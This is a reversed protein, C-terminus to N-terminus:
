NVSQHSGVVQQIRSFPWSGVTTSLDVLVSWRRFGSTRLLLSFRMASSVAISLKISTAPNYAISKTWAVADVLVRHTITHINRQSGPHPRSEQADLRTQGIHRPRVTLPRTPGRSV